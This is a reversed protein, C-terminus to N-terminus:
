FNCKVATCELLLKKMSSLSPDLNSRCIQSLHAFTESHSQHCSWKSLPVPPFTREQHHFITALALHALNLNPYTSQMAVLITNRSVQMIISYVAMYLLDPKLFGTLLKQIRCIFIYFIIYYICIQFNLVRTQELGFM